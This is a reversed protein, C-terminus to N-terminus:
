AEFVEAFREKLVQAQWQGPVQPRSLYGYNLVSGSRGLLLRSVKGFPGMGMVAMRGPERVSGWHFFDLLRGLDGSTQATAAVKFADPGWARAMAFRRHLVPSAPVGKFHHDSVVIKVGRERAEAIEEGVEELSRLEFDAWDAVPLFQRFLRRRVALHLRGAGGEAPHRVTVLLTAGREKLREAAGFLADAGDAFADVRLELVDVQGPGLKLAHQIDEELHVTGVVLPKVSVQPAFKM